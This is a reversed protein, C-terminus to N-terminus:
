RYSVDLRFGRHRDHKWHRVSVCTVNTGGRKAHTIDDLRAWGIGFEKDPASLRSTANNEDLALVSVSTRQGSYAVCISACAHPGNNIGLRSKIWNKAAANAFVASAIPIGVGEAELVSDISSGLSSIVRDASTTAGIEGCRSSSGAQEITPPLVLQNSVTLNSSRGVSVLKKSQTILRETNRSHTNIETRQKALFKNYNTMRDFNGGCEEFRSRGVKLMTEIQSGTTANLASISNLALRLDILGDLMRQALKTKRQISSREADTAAFNRNHEKQLRVVEENVKALSSWSRNAAEYQTRVEDCSQSFALSSFGLGLYFVFFASFARGM